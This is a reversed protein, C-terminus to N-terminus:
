LLPNYIEQLGTGKGETSGIRKRTRQKRLVDLSEEEGKTKPKEKRKKLQKQVQERQTAKKISRLLGQGEQKSLFFFLWFPKSLCAIKGNGADACSSSTVCLGSPVM